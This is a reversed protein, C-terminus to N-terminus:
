DNRALYSEAMRGAWRQTESDEVLATLYGYLFNPLFILKQQCLRRAPQLWSIATCLITCLLLGSNHRTLLNLQNESSSFHFISQGEHDQQVPRCYKRKHHEIFLWKKRLRSFSGNAGFIARLWMPIQTLSVQRRWARVAEHLAEESMHLALIIQFSHM